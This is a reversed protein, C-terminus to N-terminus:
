TGGVRVRGLYQAVRSVGHTRLGFLDALVLVRAVPRADEASMGGAVLARTALLLLADEAIVADTM